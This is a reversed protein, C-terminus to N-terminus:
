ILKLQQSTISEFDLKMISLVPDAIAKLQKDIYYGYDLASYQYDVPEAGAQTMVYTISTGLHSFRSDGSREWALRAAKVHPSATARYHNLDRRLRKTFVLKDDYRGANVDQIVQKLYSKVDLGQFLLLYLQYQVEKAFVTWDSRVQEMGKFTLQWHGDHLSAGVYRKKSGVESDRLTPMVFAHYHADFELELYSNIGLESALKQQWAQNIETVLQQATANVDDVGALHVFTSDTDGYIVKFGRAEIWDRTLQMIEHGRLTISSALKPDHFVCSQSGLVGYLSNMIIKIAQSLAQNGELKAQERAESLRAVISPLIPQERSFWAGLFGPVLQNDHCHDNEHTKTRYGQSTSIETSIQTSFDTSDETSTRREHESKQHLGEVLGKPDIVFTRIISPYLSKFDLVVIDQYLGPLSQMVYGGPSDAQLVENGIPAVYGHRHLHPLYLHMFAAVSAGVRGLELGTMGARELAFALLEKSEFIRWVLSCDQLNYQALAPKDLNFLHTIQEVKNKTTDILKGSSFLQQAVFELSYREFQYFAAKLWEIGDLVVRGPIILTDSRHVDKVKWSLARGARGLLLPLQYGQARQHLLALDFNVVSWGILVDPDQEIFWDMLKLLLQREDNVYELEFECDGELRQRTSQTDNGSNANNNAGHSNVMLVRKDSGSYLGISYLVGSPACEIDLSVLKLKRAALALAPRAQTIEFIPVGNDDGRWQGRCEIDLHIHREMLFRQEPRFQSEYIPLGLDLGQKYLQGMAAMSPLQLLTLAQRAFNTQTVPRSVRIDTRLQRIRAEDQQLCFCTPWQEAMKALVTGNPTAIFYEAWAQGSSVQWHRSLIRGSITTLVSM